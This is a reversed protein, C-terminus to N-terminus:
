PKPLELCPKLLWPYGDSDREIAAWKEKSAPVKNLLYVRLTDHLDLLSSRVLKAETNEGKGRHVINSRVFYLRTLADKGGVRARRLKLPDISSSVLRSPDTVGACRIANIMELQKGLSAIRKTPNVGSGECLTSLHELVSCALLFAAQLRFFRLWEGPDALRVGFDSLADHKALERVTTLGYTLVPQEASSWNSSEAAGTRRGLRKVVAQTPVLLNAKVDSGDDSTVNAIAWSYLRGSEFAGIKGYATKSDAFCLLSGEVSSETTTTL